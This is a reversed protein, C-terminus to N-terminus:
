GWRAHTCVMRCRRRRVLYVSSACIGFAHLTGELQVMPDELSGHPSGACRIVAHRLKFCSLPLLMAHLCSTCHRWLARAQPKGADERLEHPMWGSRRRNDRMVSTVAEARSCSGLCQGGPEIRAAWGPRRRDGIAGWPGSAIAPRNTRSSASTAVASRSCILQPQTRTYM